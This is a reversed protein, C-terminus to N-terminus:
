YSDPKKEYDTPSKSSTSHTLQLSYARLGSLVDEELKEVLIDKKKKLACLVQM